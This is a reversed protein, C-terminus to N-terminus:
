LFIFVKSKMRIFNICFYTLFSSTISTFLKSQQDKLKLVTFNKDCVVDAAETILNIFTLQSADSFDNNLM